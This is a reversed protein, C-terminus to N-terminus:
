YGYIELEDEETKFLFDSIQSRMNSIIFEITWGLDSSDEWEVAMGQLMRIHGYLNAITKKADMYKVKMTHHEIDKQAICEKFQEALELMEQETKQNDDEQNAESMNNDYM